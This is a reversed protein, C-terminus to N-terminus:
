TTARVALENWILEMTQLSKRLGYQRTWMADIAAKAAVKDGISLARKLEEAAERQAKATQAAVEALAAAAAAQQDALEGM